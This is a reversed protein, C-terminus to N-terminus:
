AAELFTAGRAARSVMDKPATWEGRHDQLVPSRRLAAWAKESLAPQDRIYRGLADRIEDSATGDALRGAADAAWTSFNFRRCLGALIASEALAPHLVESATVVGALAQGVFWLAEPSALTGEATMTTPSARLDRRHDHTLLARSADLAAALR